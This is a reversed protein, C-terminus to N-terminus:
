PKFEFTGKAHKSLLRFISMTPVDLLKAADPLKVNAKSEPKSVEGTVVTGGYTKAVAVLWADANKIEMFKSIAQPTFRPELGVLRVIENYNKLVDLDNKDDLYFSQPLNAAGWKLLADDSKGNSIQAKVTKISFVLDGDHCKLLWSWFGDCFSFQYHNNKAHILVDADLIYPKVM